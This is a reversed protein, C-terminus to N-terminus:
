WNINGAFVNGDHTLLANEAHPSEDSRIITVGIKDGQEFSLKTARTSISPSITIKNASPVVPETEKSCATLLATAGILMLLIRKM